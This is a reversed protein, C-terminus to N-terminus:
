WPLPGANHGCTFLSSSPNFDKSFLARWLSVTAEHSPFLPGDQSCCALLTLLSSYLLFCRTMLWFGSVASTLVYWTWPLVQTCPYPHSFQRYIGGELSVPLPPQTMASIMCQWLSSLAKDLGLSSLKTGLYACPWFKRSFNQRRRHWSKPIFFTPAHVLTWQNSALSSAKGLYSLNWRLFANM